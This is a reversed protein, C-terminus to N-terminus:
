WTNKSNRSNDNLEGRSLLKCADATIIGNTGLDKDLENRVKLGDPLVELCVHDEKYIKYIRLIKKRLKSVYGMFEDTDYNKFLAASIQNMIGENEDDIVKQFKRILKDGDRQLVVVDRFVEQMAIYNATNKIDTILQMYAKRYKTKLDYASVNQKNISLKKLLTSLEDIKAM